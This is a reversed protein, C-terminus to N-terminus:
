KGNKINRASVAATVGNIVAMLVVAGKRNKKWARETFFITGATSAAKIAIMAGSSGTANRVVPNVESAGAGVARRTSYIDMAQLVGFAAYIAPLAAPRSEQRDLKWAELPRPTLQPRREPVAAADAAASTPVVMAVEFPARTSPVSQTANGEAAATSSVALAVVVSIVAVSM